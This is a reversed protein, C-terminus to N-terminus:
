TASVVHASGKPLTKFEGEQDYSPQEQKLSVEKSDRSYNGKSKAHCKKLPPTQFVGCRLIDSDVTAM